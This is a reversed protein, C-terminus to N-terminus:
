PEGSWNRAETSEVVTEVARNGTAAPKAPSAASSVHASDRGVRSDTLSGPATMAAAFYVVFPVRM